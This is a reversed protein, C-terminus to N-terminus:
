ASRAPPPQRLTQYDVKGTSTRPLRERFGFRDPLMYPPLHQACHQKLALMTPPPGGDAVLHVAITTGEVGADAVVAAERIRPHKYIAAEIEDLEIRYGRRKVMRDRRGLYELEGAANQRVLDGTRYWRRGDGDVHFAAQTRLPHNWYERMVPGSQHIYLMGEVGAAVERGEDDLVLSCANECPRGIPYPTERAEDCEGPLRCYTCVNTETPGYLNYYAPRRWQRRLLNLHKIPFVEGAFLVLRLASYDHKALRGHQAMMALITPVSYWVSIERRSIFEALQWPQKALDEEILVVTAGATVPVYLDLISLDFHFPAHSSFRDRATPEFTQASWNVFSMASAHTHVVGKPTGTSGSTYLIYALDEAAAPELADAAGGQEVQWDGATEPCALNPVRALPAVESLAHSADAAADDAICICKVQCDGFIFRNRDVPSAVDVPVYAARARLVGWLAVVSCISKPLCIGVRDGPQVGQQRLRRAMARSLGDLQEYTISGQQDEVAIARPAAAAAHDLLECLTTANAIM